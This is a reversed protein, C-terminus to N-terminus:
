AGEEKNDLVLDLQAPTPMTFLDHNPWNQM